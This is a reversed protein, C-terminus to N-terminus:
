RRMAELRKVESGIRELTADADAKGALFAGLAQSVVHKGYIDTVAPLVREPFYGWRQIGEMGRALREAFGEEYSAFVEHKQWDALVDKRVPTKGGPTMFCWRLYGETLLFTVWKQAEDRREGEVIGLSVVQGYSARDGHPGEIVGVFGTKGALGEVPIQGEVMGAIDDVIYPSYFVMAAAGTLYFQRAESVSNSGAPGLGALKRYFVLAERLRDNSSLLRGDSAFLRAGNSLAVHEFTQQTYTEHSATGVVIGYQGAAPDHFKEAAKAIAEWTAPPDLGAKEFWDKRYWIGQAWGDIPVADAGGQANAVLELPGSFFSDEGLASIVDGAAGASLIDAQAYGKVHELGVRVVDPLTGAASAAMLKKDLDQEGVPVVKIKIAPHAQHFEDALARQLDMRDREVETTWFAVVTVGAREEDSADRGCGPAVAILAATVLVAGRSALTM